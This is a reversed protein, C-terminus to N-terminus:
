FSDFHVGFEVCRESFLLLVAAPLVQGAVAVHVFLSALLYCGHFLLRDTQRDAGGAPNPHVLDRFLSKNVGRGDDILFRTNCDQYSVMDDAAALGAIFRNLEDVRQMCM